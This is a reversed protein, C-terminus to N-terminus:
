RKQKVSRENKVLSKRVVGLMFRVKHPGVAYVLTNTHKYLNTNLEKYWLVILMNAWKITLTSYQPSKLLV